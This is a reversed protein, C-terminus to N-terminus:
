VGAGTAIVAQDIEARHANPNNNASNSQPTFNTKQPVLIGGNKRDITLEIPEGVDCVNTKFIKFLITWDKNEKKRQMGLVLRVGDVLASAGRTISQDFIADKAGNIPRIATKNTHHSAIITPKSEIQTLASVAAVWDTAASNDIECQPGLFRSAPDLIVLKIDQNEQLYDKLHKYSDTLEGKSDTLRHMHGCLPLLHINEYVLNLKEKDNVIGLGNVINKM